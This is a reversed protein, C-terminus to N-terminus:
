RPSGPMSARTRSRRKAARISVLSRQSVSAATLAYAVTYLPPATGFPSFFGAGLTQHIGAFGGVGNLILPLAVALSVCMITFQAADTLADAWFGGM